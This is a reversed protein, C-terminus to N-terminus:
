HKLDANLYTNNMKIFCIRLQRIIGEEIPKFTTTQLNIATIVAILNEKKV